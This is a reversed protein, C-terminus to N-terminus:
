GSLHFCEVCELSWMLPILRTFPTMSESVLASVDKILTAMLQYYEMSDPVLSYEEFHERKQENMDPQTLNVTFVDECLLQCDSLEAKYM